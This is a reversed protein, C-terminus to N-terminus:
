GKKHDRARALLEDRTLNFGSAIWDAELQRLMDGLAPGHVDPMLDAAKVPFTQTAADRATDLDEPDLPQELLAARLALAHAAEDAGM